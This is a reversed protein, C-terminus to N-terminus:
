EFSWMEIVRDVLSDVFSAQYSILLKVLSDEDCLLHYFTKRGIRESKVVGEVQLRNLHWSVTSPSLHVFNVMEEHSPTKNILLFLLIKRISTQRLLSLLKVDQSFERPFYVLSKGDRVENVLGSKVLFHLHHQVSGVSLGSKRQIERFHSGAFDKVVLYIGKRSDLELIKKESETLYSM